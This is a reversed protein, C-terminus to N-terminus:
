RDNKILADISEQAGTPMLEPTERVTEILKEYELAAPQVKALEESTMGKELTARFVRADEHGQIIAFTFYMYSLCRDISVIRGETYLFGLACCADPQGKNAAKQFWEFAKQEQNSESYMTGMLFQAFPDGRNAQIHVRIRTLLQLLKSIV